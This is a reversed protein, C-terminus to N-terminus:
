IVYERIYYYNELTKENIREMELTDSENYINLHTITIGYIENSFGTDAEYMLLEEKPTFLYSSSYNNYRPIKHSITTTKPSYTKLRCINNLKGCIWFPVNEDCMIDGLSPSLMGTPHSHIRIIKKFNKWNIQEIDFLEQDNEWEYYLDTEKKLPLSGYQTVCGSHEGHNITGCIIENNEIDYYVDFLAEMCACLSKVIDWAKDEETIFEYGPVKGNIIEDVIFDKIYYDIDTNKSYNCLYKINDVVEKNKIIENIDIMINTDYM